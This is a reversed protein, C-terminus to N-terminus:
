HTGRLPHQPGNTLEELLINLTRVVAIRERHPIDRDAFVADRTRTILAVAFSEM